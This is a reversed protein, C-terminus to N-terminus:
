VPLAYGLLSCTFLHPFATHGGIGAASTLSFRGSSHTASLFGIHLAFLILTSSFPCYLNAHPSFFHSFFVFIALVAGAPCILSQHFDVRSARPHIHDGPRHVTILLLALLSFTPSSSSLFRHLRVFLFSQSVHPFVWTFGAFVSIKSAVVPTCSVLRGLILVHFLALANCSLTKFYADDSEIICSM